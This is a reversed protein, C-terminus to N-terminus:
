LMNKKVDILMEYASSRKVVLALSIVTTKFQIKELILMNAKMIRIFRGASADKFCCITRLVLVVTDKRSCM